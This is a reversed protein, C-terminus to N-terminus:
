YYDHYLCRFISDQHIMIGIGAFQGASTVATM